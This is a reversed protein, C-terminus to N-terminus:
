PAQPCFQIPRLSSPNTYTDNYGSWTLQFKVPAESQDSTPDAGNIAFDIAAFDNDKPAPIGPGSGGGTLLVSWPIDLRIRHGDGTAKDVRLFHATVPEKIGAQVKGFLWWEPKEGLGVILQWNHDEDYETRDPAYPDNQFDVHFSNGNWIDSGTKSNFFPAQYTLDAAVHLAEASYKVKVRGSVMTPGGWDEPALTGVNEGSDIRIEPADAFSASDIDDALPIPAPAKVICFPKAEGLNFDQQLTEGDKLVANKVPPAELGRAVVALTYTGAEADTSYAGDEAVEARTIRHNAATAVVVAGELSRGEPAKVTGAITGAAMASTALACLLLTGVAPWRTVVRVISLGKV